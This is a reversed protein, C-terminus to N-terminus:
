TCAPAPPRTSRTNRSARTCSRWRSAARTALWRPASASTPAPGFAVQLPVDRAVDFRDADPFQREDRCAAATLLLVFDGQPMTVDHLTVDRM